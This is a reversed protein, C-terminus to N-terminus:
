GGIRDPIASMIARRVPQRDEREFASNWDDVKRVCSALEYEFLEGHHLSRIWQDKRLHDSDMFYVDGSPTTVEMVIHPVGTEWSHVRLMPGFAARHSSLDEAGYRAELRWKVGYGLARLRRGVNLAILGCGGRNRDPFRLLKRYLRSHIEHLNM